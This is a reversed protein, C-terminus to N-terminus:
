PDLELQAADADVLLKHLEGHIHGNTALIRRTSLEYPANTLSDSVRGGAEAVLLAGAATDWANLDPEFYAAGRGAAVWALMLAASGVLRVTRARPMLANIGRLSPKMSALNPPSGAYVVCEGLDTAGSVRLAAGNLHAGHGLSASFLEDQFPDYVVAAVVKHRFAVGISVCSLPLATAFNTTGDIPDVIWLWDKSSLDKDALAAAAAEAGPAVSEEGLFDHEPFAESISAEIVRQAAGDVETLLDRPSAKTARVEAGVGALILQGAQRAAESAVELVRPLLEEHDDANASAAPTLHSGWGRSALRTGAGAWGLAVRTGQGFQFARAPLCLLLVPLLLVGDARHM